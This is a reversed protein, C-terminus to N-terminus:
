TIAVGTTVVLPLVSDSGSILEFKCTDTVTSTSDGNTDQPTARGLVGKFFIHETDADAYRTEMNKYARAYFELGDTGDLAVGTLAFTSWNVAEKTQITVTPATTEIGTFTDYVESSGGEQVLQIGSSITIEQIGDLAVGNVSGPGCGFYRSATLNGTLAVSGTYVFPANTGDYNAAIVVQAEAKGNHPLRIQSWYAVSQNVVIRKHGTTARAVSGTTTAKKLYTTIAAFEAGGVGINALLVSLEPTSFEITPRARLGAVFMPNIHGAPHELMSEIGANWRCNSLANFVVSSPFVLKDLRHLTTIGM